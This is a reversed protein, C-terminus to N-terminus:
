SFYSEIHAIRYEKDKFVVSDGPRSGILAEAQPTTYSLINDKPQSDWPGLITVKVQEQNNDKRRLTVRTGIGVHSLDVKHPDIVRALGLQDHLTKARSSLLEQRARAAHYEFNEKLDGHEKATKLDVTNQPIDVKILREFEIRKEDLARETVYFTEADTESLNRYKALIKGRIRAQRYEEPEGLREMMDLMQRAEDESLSDIARDAPGGSDFYGRLENRAGKLAEKNISSLLVQLFAWNQKESLEERSDMERCMWIYFNLATEPASLVRAVLERVQRGDKACLTEYMHKILQNDSELTLMEIYVDAWDDRYEQVLTMCRRRANRDAVGMVVEAVDGRSMLNRLEQLRKEGVGDAHRELDVLIELALSPQQATDRVAEDLLDHAILADLQESRGVQKRAIALKERLDASKFQEIIQSEAAEASDTWKVTPRAGSGVVLRSDQKAKGWWTSWKKADIIGSLMEKLESTTLPKDISSFLRRLLEGPDDQALQQLEDMRELKALFFHDKDLVELTKSAEALGFSMLGTGQFTVRVKGLKVNIETVRGAGRAPLYVPTGEDLRVWAELQELAKPSSKPGFADLQEAIIRFNPSSGYAESLRQVLRNRALENEPWFELVARMLIAETEQHQEGELMEVILQLLTSTHQMEKKKVLAALIPVYFRLDEPSEELHSMVLDDVADLNGAEIAARAEPAVKENLLPRISQRIQELTVTSVFLLEKGVSWWESDRM